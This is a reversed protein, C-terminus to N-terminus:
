RPGTAPRGLLRHTALMAVHARTEPSMVNWLAEVHAATVVPKRKADAFKAAASPEDSFDALKVIDFKAEPNAPRDVLSIEHLSLRKIIKRNTADREKIKGGISFGRYVGEQVKKWASDDVVKVVIYLGRDDIVAEKAVGVASAGHMERVNAWAMYDALAEKLGSRLITEGDSDVAETSAYGEVLRKTEDRKTIAGYFQVNM